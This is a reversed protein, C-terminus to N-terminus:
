TITTEIIKTLETLDVIEQLMTRHGLYLRVIYYINNISIASMDLNVNGNVRLDFLERAANAHPERDTFFDFVVDPDIFVKPKM